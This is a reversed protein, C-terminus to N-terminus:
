VKWYTMIFQAICKATQSMTVLAQIYQTFYDTILLIHVDKKSGTAEITLFPGM